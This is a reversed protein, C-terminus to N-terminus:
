ACGAACLYCSAVGQAAALERAYAIAAPGFDIGTVQCGRGALAVAYLGPGCTVDLVHADRRWGMKGVALGAAAAREQAKRSAAGHSQDLHERLMRASFEPDDWPLNGGNQWPRPREPRHFIRWM